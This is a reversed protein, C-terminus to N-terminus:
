FLDMLCLKTQDRVKLPIDDWTLERSFAIIDNTDLM